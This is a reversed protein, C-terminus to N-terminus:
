KQVGYNDTQMREWEEIAYVPEDKFMLTLKESREGLYWDLTKTFKTRKMDNGIVDKIKKEDDNNEFIIQRLHNKGAFIYGDLKFEIQKNKLKNILSKLESIDM